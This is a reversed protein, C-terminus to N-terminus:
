KGEVKFDGLGSLGGDSVAGTSSLGNYEGSLVYTGGTASDFSLLIVGTELRESAADGYHIVYTLMATTASTREYTYSGNPLRRGALIELVSEDPQVEKSATDALEGALVIRLGASLDAPASTSGALAALAEGSLTFNGSKLATESKAASASSASGSAPAAAASSSAVANAIGNGSSVGAPLPAAAAVSAITNVNSVRVEVEKSKSPIKSLNSVVVWYTGATATTAPYITYTDLVARPILVGDKFWQYTLQGSGVATVSLTGRQGAKL